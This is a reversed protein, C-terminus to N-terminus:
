PKDFDGVLWSAVLFFLFFVLFFCPSSLVRLCAFGFAFALALTLYCLVLGPLVQVLPLDGFKDPDM